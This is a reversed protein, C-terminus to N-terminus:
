GTIGTGPEPPDASHLIRGIEDQVVDSVNNCATRLRDVFEPSDALWNPLGIVAVMNELEGSQGDLEYIQNSILLSIAAAHEHKRPASAYKRANEERLHRIAESQPQNLIHSM